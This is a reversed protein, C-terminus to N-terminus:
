PRGTIRPAIRGKKWFDYYDDRGETRKRDLQETHISNVRGMPTVGRVIKRNSQKRYSQQKQTNQEGAEHVLQNSHL